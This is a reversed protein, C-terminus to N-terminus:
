VQELDFGRERRKCSDEEKAKRRGFPEDVADTSGRIERPRSM